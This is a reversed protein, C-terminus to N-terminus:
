ATVTIDIVIDETNTGDTITITVKGTDGNAARNDIEFAGTSTNVTGTLARGSDKTATQVTWGTALKLTPTVTGAAAAEAATLSWTYNNGTTNAFTGSSVSLTTAGTTGTATWNSGGTSGGDGKPGAVVKLVLAVNIADDETWEVDVTASSDALKGAFGLYGSVGTVVPEDGTNDVSAAGLKMFKKQSTQGAEIGKDRNAAVTSNLMMISGDTDALTGEALTKLDDVTAANILAMQAGKKGDTPAATAVTWPTKDATSVTTIAKADIVIGYDTSMNKIEYAPSAIGATTTVADAAAIGNDPDAEIAEVLKIDAGYPNLAASMKAPMILNLVVKPTTAAVDYEVEGAAKIEKTAAFASTTMALLSASALVGALIKKM